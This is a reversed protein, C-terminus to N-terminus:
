EARRALVVSVQTTAEGGATLLAEVVKGAGATFTLGFTLEVSQVGLQGPEPSGIPRRALETGLREAVAGIQAAIADATANLVAEGLVAVRNRRPGDPEGSASQFSTSEDLGSDEQAARLLVGVEFEAVDERASPASNEHKGAVAM